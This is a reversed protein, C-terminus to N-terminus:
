SRVPPPPLPPAPVLSKRAPKGTLRAIIEEGLDTPHAFIANRVDVIGKACLEAFAAEIEALSYRNGLNVMITPFALGYGRKRSPDAEPFVSLVDRYIDIKRLEAVYQDLADSM